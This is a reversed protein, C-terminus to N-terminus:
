MDLCCLVGGNSTTASTPRRVANVSERYADSGCSWSGDLSGCLNGGSRDVDGCTTVSVGESGCGFIDNTIAPNARCGATGSANMCNAGTLAGSPEACEYYGTSGIAAAFFSSTPWKEATCGDTQGTSTLASRVRAIIEGGACIHSVTVVSQRGM